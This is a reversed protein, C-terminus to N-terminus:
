KMIKNNKQQNVGAGFYYGIVTDAKASAYGVVGGVLALQAADAGSAHGCFVYYICSCFAILTIGALVRPTWVDGTKIERMRASDRDQMAIHELDIDLERMQRTFELEAQKITLMQEPTAKVIAASVTEESSETLGLASGIAAVAMGALPSGLATALAPAVTGVISKWGSM